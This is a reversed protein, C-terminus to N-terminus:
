ERECKQPFFFFCFFCFFFFFFFFFFFSISHLTIGDINNEKITCLSLMCKEERM